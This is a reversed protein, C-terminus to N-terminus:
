EGNIEKGGYWLSFGWGESKGFSDDIDRDAGSGTSVITPSSAKQGPLDDTSKNARKIDDAKSKLANMGMRFAGPYDGDEILHAGNYFGEAFSIALPDPIPGKSGVAYLGAISSSLEKAQQESYCANLIICRLHEKVFPEMFFKKIITSFDVKGHEFLLENPMGHGAFHVIKAQSRLVERQFEIYSVAQNSLLEFREGKLAAKIAKFELDV